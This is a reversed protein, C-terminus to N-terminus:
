RRAHSHARGQPLATVRGALRAEIIARDADPLASRWTFGHVEAAIRADGAIVAVSAGPTVEGEIFGPGRATVALFPRHDIFSRHLATQADLDRPELTAQAPGEAMELIAAALGEDDLAALSPAYMSGMSGHCRACHGEFFAIPGPALPDAPVIPPAHDAARRTCAPALVAACSAAIQIARSPRM